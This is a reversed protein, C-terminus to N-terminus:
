SSASKSSGDNNHTESATLFSIVALTRDVSIANLFFSYKMYDEIDGVYRNPM